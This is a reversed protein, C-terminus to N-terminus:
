DELTEITNLPMSKMKQVECTKAAAKISTPLAKESDGMVKLAVTSFMLTAIISGIITMQLM